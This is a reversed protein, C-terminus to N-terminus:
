SESNQIFYYVYSLFSKKRVIKKADPIGDHVCKGHMLMRCFRAIPCSLFHVGPSRQFLSQLSQKQVSVPIPAQVNLPHKPGFSELFKRAGATGGDVIGVTVIVSNLRSSKLHAGYSYKLNSHLEHLHLLSPLPARQVM